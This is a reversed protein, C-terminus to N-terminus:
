FLYAVWWVGPKMEKIKEITPMFYEMIFVQCYFVFDDQMEDKVTVVSGFSYIFFLLTILPPEQNFTYLFSLRFLAADDCM